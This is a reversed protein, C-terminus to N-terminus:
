LGHLGPVRECQYTFISLIGILSEQQIKSTQCRKLDMFNDNSFSM